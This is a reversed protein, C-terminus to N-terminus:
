EYRLAETPAIQAARRAPVVNAVLAVVALIGAVLVFTTPDNPRIGYLLSELVGSGLFALGLGLALGVGVLMMGERVVMGVVEQRRAGLAMRIGVERTRRAVSFAVVGYLGVGALALGLLGFGALLSAGLRAPFLMIDLHESLTKSDFLPVNPDLAQLEGRVAALLGQENGGGAAVLTMMSSYNQRFPLYIFSRTSEGLTRYKGNAAVGVVESWPQDLSFRVRKGLPGEGPWYLSAFAENVIVVGPSEGKTQASFDRGRTLDIGLTEFYGADATVVDVEPWDDENELNQGEPLLGNTQVSFGLPMQEVLAASCVGPLSRVRELLQDYFQRGEEESYRGGLGLAMQVAAGQRTSFGPDVAQAHALSRLFLGSGCLLVTSLMVQVVVLANRLSLRRLSNAPAGQTGKLAPVLDPRSAQLAPALGCVLGTLLALGLTFAFLEPSPGLDLSIPVPLPPQFAVILRTMWLALLLGAVGGAMALALSEALLQRILRSRSAGLALRIAVEQRRDAARALLLNAINSCAILLVLGVIVMLLGAVGFLPGDMGPNLAVESAAVVTMSRNENTEPYATALQAALIEFNAQATEVSVKPLLRGKLFMSRHGRNELGARESIADSMALPIWFDVALGPFTGKIEPPAVGIIEFNLGNLKLLRGLIESDEAFRTKWFSNSLVVVPSAGLVEEEQPVFGRGLIPELGLFDFYNASVEEGFLLETEVDHDHSAISVRFAMLDSLVENQQRLDLFDPYSSTAYQFGGSDGTYVEVVEEPAKLPLDRLLLANVISFMATNVGIGLALSTVALVTMGPKLTLFRIAQRIDQLLDHM